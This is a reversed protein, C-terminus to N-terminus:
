NNLLDQFLSLTLEASPRFDPGRVVNSRGLQAPAAQHQASTKRSPAKGHQTANCMPISPLPATLWCSCRAAGPSAPQRRCVRWLVAPAGNRTSDGWFNPPFRRSWPPEGTPTPQHRPPRVSTPSPPASVPIAPPTPLESRNVFGSPTRAVLNVFSLAVGVSPGRRRPPAPAYGADDVQALFVVTIPFVEFHWPFIARFLLQECHFPSPTHLMRIKM